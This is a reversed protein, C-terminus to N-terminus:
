PLHIVKFYAHPKYQNELFEIGSHMLGDKNAVIDLEYQQVNMRLVKGIDSDILQWTGQQRADENFLEHEWLMGDDLFRVVFSYGHSGIKVWVGSTVEDRRFSRKTERWKPYQAFQKLGQSPAIPNRFLHPAQWLISNTGGETEYGFLSYLRVQGDSPVLV